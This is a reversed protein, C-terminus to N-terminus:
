RGEHARFGEGRRECGRGAVARKEGIVGEVWLGEGREERGRFGEGGRECGCGAAVRKEGIVGEVRLGEGKKRVGGARLLGRCHSAPKTIIISINEATMQEEKQVRSFSSFSM